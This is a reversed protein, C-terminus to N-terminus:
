LGCSRYSRQAIPVALAESASQRTSRRSRGRAKCGVYLEGARVAALAVQIREPTLAKWQVFCAVDLDNIQDHAEPALLKGLVVTRSCSSAARLDRVLPVLQMGALDSAVLILDPQERAAIALAYERRQVDDIVHVEPWGALLARLAVWNLDTSSVLLATTSQMTAVKELLPNCEAPSFYSCGVPDPARHGRRQRGNRGRRHRHLADGRGDEGHKLPLPLWIEV